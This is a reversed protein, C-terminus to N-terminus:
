RPDIEKEEESKVEFLLVAAPVQNLDYGLLATVTNWIPSWGVCRYGNLLKSLELQDLMSLGHYDRSNYPLRVRVMKRLIHAQAM